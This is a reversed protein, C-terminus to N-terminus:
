RKREQNSEIDERISCVKHTSDLKVKKAKNKKVKKKQEKSDRNREPM